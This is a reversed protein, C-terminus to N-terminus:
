YGGNRAFSRENNVRALNKSLVRGDMENVITANIQSHRAIAQGLRDLTADDLPIVAEPNRGEGAIYSGMMVGSGPNHVIGGQALRPITPIKINNM